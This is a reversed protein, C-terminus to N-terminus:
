KKRIGIQEGMKVPVECESDTAEFLWDPLVAADKKLLVIVTSGGYLFKGKEQGRKIKRNQHYNKIKGVLLAGVEMQIVKGFNETMIATYERCNEVFVPYRKLAIPRVTHLRGRIFHNIGKVGDDIYSYRHYHNVCLRFVLCIGDEYEDALKRNRLLEKVSYKSQKIPLVEKGTIKYASLLGDCPAILHDSETDIPRLEKKIRRSFCENFSQYCVPEYDEIRINNKKIFPKILWKSFSSDLYSGCIRSLTRGSLSKLILRGALTDYLFKLTESDEPIPIRKDEM